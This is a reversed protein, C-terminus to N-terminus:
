RLSLIFVTAGLREARMPSITPDFSMALAPLRVL